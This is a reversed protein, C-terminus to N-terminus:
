SYYNMKLVKYGTHQRSFQVSARTCSITHKHILISLNRTSVFPSLVQLTIQFSICESDPWNTICFVKSDFSGALSMFHSTLVFDQLLVHSGLAMSQGLKLDWCRDNMSLLVIGKSFLSQIFRAFIGEPDYIVPMKDNFVRAVQVAYQPPLGHSHIWDQWNPYLWSLVSSISTQLNVDLKLNHLTSLSLLTDGKTCDISLSEVNQEWRSRGQELATIIREARESSRKTEQITEHTQHKQLTILDYDRKLSNVEDLLAEIQTNVTKLDHNSHELEGILRSIETRLPQVLMSTETYRIQSLLWELLPGCAKSARNATEVSLEMKSIKDVNSIINTNLISSIFDDQKMISQVGKWSEFTHGLGLCVAELVQKIVDPPNVMSRLEALHLKHISAVAEKATRIAPEIESLQQRVCEQEKQISKQQNEM